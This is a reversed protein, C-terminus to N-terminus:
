KKIANIISQQIKPSSQDLISALDSPHMNIFRESLGQYNGQNIDNNIEAITEDISEIYLLKISKKKRM